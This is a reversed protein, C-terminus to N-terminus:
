SKERERKSERVRANDEEEERECNSASKCEVNDESGVQYKKAVREDGQRWQNDQGVAEETVVRRM